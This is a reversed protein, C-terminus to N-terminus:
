CMYWFRIVLCCLAPCCMRGNRAVGSPRKRRGIGHAKDRAQHALNGLSSRPAAIPPLDLDAVGEKMAKSRESLIPNPQTQTAALRGAKAQIRKTIVDNAIDIVQESCHGLAILLKLWDEGGYTKFCHVRCFGQM